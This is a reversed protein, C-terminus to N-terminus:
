IFISTIGKNAYMGSDIVYVSVGRGASDFGFTKSGIDPRSLRALGWPANDQVQIAKVINEREVHEICPIEKMISLPLVNDPFCLTYGKFGQKYTRHVRADLAGFVESLKRFMDNEVSDSVKVIYCNTGTHSSPDSIYLFNSASKSGQQVLNQNVVHDSPTGNFDNLHDLEDTSKRFVGNYDGSKLLAVLKPMIVDSTDSYAFLGKDKNLNHTAQSSGDLAKKEAQSSMGPFAGIFLFNFAVLSFYACIKLLAKM